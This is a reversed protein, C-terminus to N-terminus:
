DAYPDGIQVLLGRAAKEYIQADSLSDVGQAAIRAVVERFLQEGRQGSYAQLAFGGVLTPLLLAAALSRRRATRRRSEAATRAPTPPTRKM